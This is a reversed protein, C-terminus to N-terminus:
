TGAGKEQQELEPILKGLHGTPAEWGFCPCCLTRGEVEVREGMGTYKTGPVNM